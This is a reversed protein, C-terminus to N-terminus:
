VLIILIQKISIINSIIFGELVGVALRDVGSFFLIFLCCNKGCRNVERCLSEKLVPIKCYSVYRCNIQFMISFFINTRLIIGKM